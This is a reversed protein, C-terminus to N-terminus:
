QMVARSCMAARLAQFRRPVKPKTINDMAKAV